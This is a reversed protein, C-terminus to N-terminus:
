RVKPIIYGRFPTDRTVTRVFGLPILDLHRQVEHIVADTYPLAPRDRLSPPRESGVVRDLEEQVREMIAPNGVAAMMGYRLAMSTTEM